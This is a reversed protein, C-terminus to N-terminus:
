NIFNNSETSYDREYTDKSILRADTAEINIWTGKSYTKGDKVYSSVEVWARVWAHNVFNRTDSQVSSTDAVGSQYYAPVGQSRLMAVLLKSFENCVGGGNAIVSDPNVYMDITGQKLKKDYKLKDVWIAINRVNEYQTEQNDWLEEAKATANPAAAYDGWPTSLLFPALDADITSVQFSNKYQIHYTKRDTNNYGIAYQYKGTGDMLAVKISADKAVTFLAQVGTNPGELLFVREQGKATFTIYGSAATSWDVTGYRSTNSANVAAPTPTDVSKVLTKIEGYDKIQKEPDVKSTYGTNGRLIRSKYNGSSPNKTTDKTKDGTPIGDWVWSAPLGNNYGNADPLTGVAGVDLSEGSGAPAGCSALCLLTAITLLLCLMRPFLTTRNTPKM